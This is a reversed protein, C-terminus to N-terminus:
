LKGLHTKNAEIWSGNIPRIYVLRERIVGVSRSLDNVDTPCMAMAGQYLSGQGRTCRDGFCPPSVGVYLDQSSSVRLRMKNRLTCNDTSRSM